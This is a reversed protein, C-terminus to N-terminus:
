LSHLPAGTNWGLWDKVNRWINSSNEECDNIKKIHWLKKEKKLTNNINKSLKKYIKWDETEGTRAAKEQALDRESIKQKTSASLWPAYKSRVQFKKIPAMEDLISTLADTFMKVALNVDECKYVQWWSIKRVENLFEIPNFNKFSRKLIFRQNRKISKSFKTAIVLKHDSAGQFFTLVESLKHPHTTYYHDLGSPTQNPWYHTPGTVCQAVGHPLIRSFLANILPRLRATHSNSHLDDRNWLLFNLNIDGMVHCELNTALAAEWQTLFQNWRTLQAEISNSTRDAQGLYQWERYNMCVLFRKQRPLGLEIWISSYSNNMLDTRLKPKIMDKHVYLAVRSVELEPNQLTESLFLTYNELQVSNIDHTKKFNAESVGFIHPSYTNVVNEFEEIKNQLFRSGANWSVIKIGKTRNGFKYHAEFNVNKVDISNSLFEGCSKEHKENNEYNLSSKGINWIGAGSILVLLLIITKFKYSEQFYQNTGWFM